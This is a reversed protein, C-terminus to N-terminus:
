GPSSGRRSRRTCASRCRTRSSRRAHHVSEAARREEGLALGVVRDPVEVEAEDHEGGDAEAIQAGRGVRTPDQDAHLRQDPLDEEDREDGAEDAVHGPACRRGRSGGGPSAAPGPTRGTSSAGSSGHRSLRRVHPRQQYATVSARGMVLEAAVAALLGPVIFGARGTTEAVFVVAALPVRYGAGLFAAVGIVVALQADIGDFAGGAARGLLAGAVVLPIFLGGAGGGASRRARPSSASCSCWWCCGSRTTAAWDGVRAHQLRHRHAVSEGTVVRGLVFVAALLAGLASSASSARAPRHRLAQGGSCCRSAARRSAPSARRHRARRRPRRGLPRPLPEGPLDADHRARRRVRPVRDGVRDARPAAHPAAFDDVYPVELAFVAGTAPAKFIAAVGAAAGAVMLVRRDATRLWQVARNRGLRGQTVAGLTAGLYLSPGELGMAGGSGLTAIAALMRAPLRAPTLPQEPDHFARLYADATEPTTPLRAARGSGGSARPPSRSGSRHAPGRGGLAPLEAVGEGLWEVVITEFLAVLFGPSPAPRPRSCSSRDSAPWRRRTLGGAPRHASDARVGRLGFWAMEALWGALRDPDLEGGSVALRRSTAEAM